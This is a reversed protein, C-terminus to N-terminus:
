KEIYDMCNQPGVKFPKYHVMDYLSMVKIELLFHIHQERWLQELLLSPQNLEGCLELQVLMM